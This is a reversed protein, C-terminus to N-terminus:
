KAVHHYFFTQVLLRYVDNVSVFYLLELKITVSRRQSVTDTKSGVVYLRGPPRRVVYISCDVKNKFFTFNEVEHFGPNKILSTVM